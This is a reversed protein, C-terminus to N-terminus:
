YNYENTKFSSEKDVNNLLAFTIMGGGSMLVIVILWIYYSFPVEVTLYDFKSWDKIVYDKIIIQKLEPLSVDTLGKSLVLTEINRKVIDKETWGFVYVWSPKLVDGGFCIVLDNKKGGIWKAEQEYAISMSQDKFGVAILNVFKSPGLEANLQDWKYLNIGNATGILRSSTFKDSNNPYENVPLNPGAEVKHFSFLSPSAKVKNEWTKQTTVPYIHNNKNSVIYDNPDGSQLHSNREEFGACSRDGPAPNVAGLKEKIDNYRYEDIGYTGVLTDTAHWEPGHNRTRHEWHSFVRRSRRVTRSHTRGKSDSYVETTTYHETRYIAQEYSEVWPPQYRASAVQGSWTEIDDTMGKIAFFNFLAATIFCIATVVAVEWLVVRKNM